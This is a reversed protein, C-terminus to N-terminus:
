MEEDDHAPRRQASRRHLHKRQQRAAEEDEEQARRLRAYRRAEGETLGDDAEGPRTLPVYHVPTVRRRHARAGDASKEVLVLEQPGGYRPGVPVVMRGGPALLPMLPAVSDTAAGVHIADFPAEGKLPGEPDLVNGHALRVGSRQHPSSPSSPSPSPSPSPAAAATPSLAEAAGWGVHQQQQQTLRPSGLAGDGGNGSRGTSFLLEPNARAIAYYGRAALDPEKEVGLVYGEAAAVGGAGGGGAGDGAANVLKALVAVLYGSGSGVDLVRSGPRLSPELLEAAMAHMHPASITQGHGISLPKDAYFEDAAAFEGNVYQARDVRQFADIVRHTRLLREAVLHHVLHAQSAPAGRTATTGGGFM